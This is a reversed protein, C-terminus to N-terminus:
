FRVDDGLEDDTILIEMDNFSGYLLDEPDNEDEDSEDKDYDLFEPSISNLTADLDIFTIAESKLQNFFPDLSCLDIGKRNKMWENLSCEYTFLWASSFLSDTEMFKQWKEKALKGKYLGKNKAYMISLLFLTDETDSFDEIAVNIEIGLQCLIYIAWLLEFTRFNQVKEKFDSLLTDHILDTNLSYGLEKYTILLRGVLPLVRPEYLTSQLILSEFLKWNEKYIKVALKKIIAYHLVNKAPFKKYLDFALNFYAMLDSEQRKEGSSIKKSKLLSLWDYEIEVPLEMIQTKAENIDLEYSNFIRTLENLIEKARYPTKCQITYDDVYRLFSIDPFKEELMKDIDCLIVESIIRSTDPGVPIGLTQKDQLNRLHYDLKNSFNDKGILSKAKIKGLLAWPVSHTYITQYFRSIDTTLVYKNGCSKIVRDRIYDEYTRTPVIARKATQELKPISYSNKSKNFISEIEDYSSLIHQTLIYQHAPNPIMILRKFHSNKPIYFRACKSSEESPTEIISSKNIFEAFKQTNFIPPLEKPFYGKSLLSHLDM